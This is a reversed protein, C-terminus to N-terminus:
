WSDLFIVLHVQRTELLANWLISEITICNSLECYLPGLFSSQLPSCQNSPLNNHHHFLWDPFQKIVGHRYQWSLALSSSRKMLLKTVYIYLGKLLSMTKSWRLRLQCNFYFLIICFWHKNSFLQIEKKNNQFTQIYTTISNPLSHQINMAGYQSEVAVQLWRVTHNCTAPHELDCVKSQMVQSMTCLTIAYFLVLIVSTLQEYLRHLENPQPHPWTIPEHLCPLSGKCGM